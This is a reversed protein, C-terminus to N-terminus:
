GRDFDFPQAKASARSVTYVHPLTKLREIAEELEQTNSVYLHFLGEFLGDQTEITVKNINLKMLMTIVRILEALMGQKDVGVIKLSTLFTVEQQPDKSWKARIIRDGHQSSFGIAVECSTRHIIVGDGQSYALIEDGRVPNCCDAIVYHDLNQDTGMELLGSDLEQDQYRKRMGDHRREWEEIYESSIEKGEEKLSIFDTIKGVNVQKRALRLYFEDMSPVMFYALLEKIYPHQEDLAYKRARWKFIRKGKEVDEKRQRRLSNKIANKARATKVNRLWDEQPRQKRSTIVEVQDGPRLVADLTVVQNNLKAGIASDGINSHIKYAFDLVTSRNPLRLMEGKPTFVFVDDPQLNEKFERLAELADLSPNELIERVQGIWHNIVGERTTEDEKYKWHAAIGKEAVYDMRKSRIQVEVWKGEPGLVTTHLSEYGNAKPVSIWDRIRKPNPKYRSTLMAYVYWCAQKEEDEPADLIIRIAYLDYIEEFPVKKRLMKSYISYVSKFRSKVEFQLNTPDLQHRIGIIFRDIYAQAEAQSERIKQQIQNYVAPQSYKLALDEMETKIAYLGLRHALPAYIYLTESTKKLMKEQRMVGMTRMNHLRDGLKILVVRIDNSITLLVKRFNEAQNSYSEALNNVLGISGSIKTLGDIIERVKHGFEREMDALEYRTDEVVDHLLACMISVPDILGMEVVVIRAVAVPHFIYPEGSKRKVGEHAQRAFNFARSIDKREQQPLSVLEDMLLQFEREIRVDYDIKEVEYTEM